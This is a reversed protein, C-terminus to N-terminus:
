SQGKMPLEHEIPFTLGDEGASRPQDRTRVPKRSLHDTHTAAVQDYLLELKAAQTALEFLEAARRAGAQGLARAREPEALLAALNESLAEVDGEPALLGTSRDDVAEVVGGHRYAVVPLGALAAEIFVMGLGEADGNAARQSPGCFIAHARLL